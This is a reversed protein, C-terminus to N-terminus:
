YEYQVVVRGGNYSNHLFLTDADFPTIIEVADNLETGTEIYVKEGKGNKLINVYEGQNDQCIVQYPLTLINKTEADKITGNFQVGHVINKHVSNIDAFIDIVTKSGTLSTDKRLAATKKSVTGYCKADPATAPYFEVVDGVNIKAYDQQDVTIKLMLSNDSEIVCLKQDSLVFEGDKAAINRVFGSETAYINANLGMLDTKNVASFVESYQTFNNSKVYNEMKKTDIEFLLQGKNVFSNENVYCRKIILPYSFSIETSNVAEVVGSIQMENCYTQQLLKTAKVTKIDSLSILLYGLVSIILILVFYLYKKSM